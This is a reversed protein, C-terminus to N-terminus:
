RNFEMSNLCEFIKQLATKNAKTLSEAESESLNVLSAIADAVMDKKVVPEGSKSTAVKAVYVKERSLKAVISRVSKGMDLAIQEVAIGSQYLTVVQVTQEPTYNVVATKNTM